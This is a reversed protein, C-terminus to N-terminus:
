AIWTWNWRKAFQVMDANAEDLFVHSDGVFLHNGEWFAMNKSLSGWHNQAARYIKVYHILTM